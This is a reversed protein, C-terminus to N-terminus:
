KKKRSLVPLVREKKIGGRATAAVEAAFAFRAFLPSIPVLRTRKESSARQTNQLDASFGLPCLSFHLYQTSPYFSRPCLPSHLFQTSPLPFACLSPFLPSSLSRPYLSIFSNHLPSYFLSARALLIFPFACLSPLFPLSRNGASM